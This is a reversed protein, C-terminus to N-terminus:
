LKILRIVEEFFKGSKDMAELLKAVQIEKQKTRLASLEKLANEYAAKARTVKAEAVSKKRDM